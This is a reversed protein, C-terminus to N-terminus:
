RPEHRAAPESAAPPSVPAAGQITVDPIVEAVAPNAKLRSEEGASVTAAFSNVLRYAKVHTAHVQSLESMLPKQYSRIMGARTNAASSGVRAAPLQSKMIVIVHRNVNQSLQAALAPTMPATAANPASPAATAATAVVAQGVVLAPVAAAAIVLSVARSRARARPAGGTMRGHM